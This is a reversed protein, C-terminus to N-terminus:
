DGPQYDVWVTTYALDVKLGSCVIELSGLRKLIIRLKGFDCEQLVLLFDDNALRV